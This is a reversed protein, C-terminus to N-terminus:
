NLLAACYLVDGNLSESAHHAPRPSQKRGQSDSDKQQATEDKAEVSRKMQFAAGGCVDSMFIEVRRAISRGRYTRAHAGGEASELLPVV